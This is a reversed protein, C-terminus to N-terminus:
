CVNVRSLELCLCTWLVHGKCELLKQVIQIQYYFNANNAKYWSLHSAASRYSKSMKLNLKDIWTPQAQRPKLFFSHSFIHPLVNSVSHPSLLCLESEVNQKRNASHAQSVYNFRALIKQTQASLRNDGRILLTDQKTTNKLTRQSSYFM